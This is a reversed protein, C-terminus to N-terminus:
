MLGQRRLIEKLLTKFAKKVGEGTKSSLKVHGFMNFPELFEQAYDDEVTIDDVRDLKTGGFLIPLDADHKRCIGVWEEIQNLTEMRTLDYLLLAGKAGMVYSDLMFRFRKQGGFDWLQLSCDFGEVDLNLLFFEVGITMSTDELFKGHVVRHLM